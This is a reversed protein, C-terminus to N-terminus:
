PGQAVFESSRAAGIKSFGFIWRRRKNPPFLARSATGSMDVGAALHEDSHVVPKITFVDMTLQNGWQKGCRAQQRWLGDRVKLTEDVESPVPLGLDGFLEM